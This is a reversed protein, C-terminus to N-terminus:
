LTPFLLTPFVSHPVHVHAFPGHPPLPSPVTPPPPPPYCALGPRASSPGLLLRVQIHDAYQPTPYYGHHMHEGWVDLWIQSSEDYFKAIGSKLEADSRQLMTGRFMRWIGQFLKQISTVLKVLPSRSATEAPPTLTATAHLASPSDTRLQDTEGGRIQHFRSGGPPQNARQGTQTRLGSRTLRFSQVQHLGGIDVLLLVLCSPIWM